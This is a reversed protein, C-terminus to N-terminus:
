IEPISYVPFQLLIFCFWVAFELGHIVVMTPHALAGITELHLLRVSKRIRAALRWKLTACRAVVNMPLQTDTLVLPADVCLSEM